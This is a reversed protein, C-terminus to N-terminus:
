LAIASLMDGKVVRYSKGPVPGDTRNNTAQNNTQNNAPAPAADPAAAAERVVPEAVPPPSPINAENQAPPAPKAVPAAPAPVQNEAAAQRLPVTTAEFSAANDATTSKPALVFFGAAGILVLVAAAAVGKVWPRRPAEDPADNAFVPVPADVTRSVKIEVPPRPREVPARKPAPPAPTEAVPESMQESMLESMLEPAIFQPVAPTERPKRPLRELMVPDNTGSRLRAVALDIDDPRGNAAVFTKFEEALQPNEAHLVILTQQLVEDGVFAEGQLRRVVDSEFEKVRGRERSALLLTRFEEVNNGPLAGLRRVAQKVAPDYNQYTLWLDEKAADSEDGTM